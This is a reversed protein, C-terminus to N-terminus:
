AAAATSRPGASASGDTAAPRRVTERYFRKAAARDFHRAYANDPVLGAFSSRLEARLRRQEPTHDLHM